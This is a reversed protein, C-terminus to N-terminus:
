LEEDLWENMRQRYAKKLLIRLKEPDYEEMKQVETITKTLTAEHSDLRKMVREIAKRNKQLLKQRLDLFELVEEKTQLDELFEEFHHKKEGFALPHHAMFPPFFGSFPQSRPPHHWYGPRRPKRKRVM